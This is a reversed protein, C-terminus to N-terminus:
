ALDQGLQAGIQIVFLQMEWQARGRWWTAVRDIGMGAGLDGDMGATLERSETGMGQGDMISCQISSDNEVSSAVMDSGLGVLDDGRDEIMMLIM